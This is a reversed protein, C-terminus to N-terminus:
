RALGRLVVPLFRRATAVPDFAEDFWAQLFLADWAGVMAAAVSAVDLDSRFEGREVGEQILASVISRYDGYLNRFAEKFRDRMQSSSSASWFEMALSFVDKIELWSKMLSESLAELRKTASGGLDAVHVKAEKGTQKVFWEFVAFFLDEKSHFYEYLTGKGMGAEAAIDAMLTGFFGRRAFVKAAAEVIRARKMKKIHQDYTM